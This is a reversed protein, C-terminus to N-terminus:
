LKKVMLVLAKDRRRGELTAVLPSQQSVRRYGLTKYLIYAPTNTPDVHLTAYSCNWQNCALDEAAKVLASGIGRKRHSPCVALNSIYATKPRLQNMNYLNGNLLAPWTFRNPPVFAMATDICVAGQIACESVDLPNMPRSAGSRIWSFLMYQIIQMIANNTTPAVSGSDNQREESGSGVLCAFSGRSRDVAAYGQELATIRDLRLLTDWFAGVTGYFANCHVQAISRFDQATAERIVYETRTQLVSADVAVWCTKSRTIIKRYRFRLVSISQHHRSHGHRQPAGSLSLNM